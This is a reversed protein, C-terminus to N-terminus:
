CIIAVQFGANVYAGAEDKLRVRMQTNLGGFQSGRYTYLTHYGDTPTAMQACASIDRDFTLTFVGLDTIGQSVVGRGHLLAGAGTVYAYAALGSFKTSDIGDLTGADPAKAIINNPLQGTTPSTAVLKGKRNAVTSGAGVAHKGDVKDANIADYAAHAVTPGAAFVTSVLVATILVPLHTRIRTTM